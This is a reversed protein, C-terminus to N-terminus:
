DQLTIQEAVLEWRGRHVWVETYGESTTLERGRDAVTSTSHGSLVAVDGYVSVRRLDDVLDFHRLENQAMRARLGARDIITGDVGVYTFDSGYYRVLASDSGEELLARYYADHADRVGQESPEAAVRSETAQATPDARDAEDPSVCASTCAVLLIAVGAEHIRMAAEM